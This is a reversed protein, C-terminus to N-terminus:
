TYIDKVFAIPSKTLLKDSGFMKTTLICTHSTHPTPRKGTSVPSSSEEYMSYTYFASIAPYQHNIEMLLLLLTLRLLTPLPRLRRLVFDAMGYPINWRLYSANGFYAVTTNNIRFVKM